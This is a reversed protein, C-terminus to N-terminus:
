PPTVKMGVLDLLQYFVAVRCGIPILDHHGVFEVGAHDAVVMEKSQATDTAHGVLDELVMIKANWHADGVTADDRAVDAVVHGDVIHMIHGVVDDAVLADEEVDLLDAGGVVGLEAVADDLFALGLVHTHPQLHHVFVATAPDQRKVAHDGGIGVQPCFIDVVLRQM